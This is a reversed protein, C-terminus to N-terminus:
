NAVGMDARRGRLHHGADRGRVIGRRLAGEAQRALCHSGVDSATFNRTM